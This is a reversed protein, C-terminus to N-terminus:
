STRPGTFGLALYDVGARGSHHLLKDNQRRHHGELVVQPDVAGAVGALELALVDREAGADDGDGVDELRQGGLPVVPVRHRELLDDGIEDLVLARGSAALDLATELGAEGPAGGGIGWPARTFWLGNPAGDKMQIAIPVWYRSENSELTLIPTATSISDMSGHVFLSRLTTEIPQFVIYFFIPEGPVGVLGSLM